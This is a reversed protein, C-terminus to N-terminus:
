DEWRWMTQLMSNSGFPILDLPYWGQQTKEEVCDLVNELGGVCQTYEVRPRQRLECLCVANSSQGSAKQYAQNDNDTPPELPNSAIFTSPQADGTHRRTDWDLTWFSYATNDASAISDQIVDLHQAFGQSSMIHWPGPLADCLAMCNIHYHYQWDPPFYIASTSDSNLQASVNFQSEYVGLLNV